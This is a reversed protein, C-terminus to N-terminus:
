QPKKSRENQNAVGGKRRQRKQRKENPRKSRQKHGTRGVTLVVDMPVGIICPQKPTYEAHVAHVFGPCLPWRHGELGWERAVSHGRTGSCGDLGMFTCWPCTYVDVAWEVICAMNQRMKTINAIHHITHKRARKTHKGAHKLTNGRLM